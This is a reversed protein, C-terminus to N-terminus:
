KIFYAHAQLVSGDIPSIVQNRFGYLQFGIDSLQTYIDKFMKQGRYLKQFTVEILLITAISLVRKGGKIVQHEYGQTDIKVWLPKEVQNPKIVDDLRKVKIEQLKAGRSFPFNKKHLDGMPLLSSSPPYSSVFIKTTKETEGLAYPFVRINSLHATKEKLTNFSEAVPEFAFIKIDSFLQRAYDIYEGHYAGIDIFSKIRLRKLWADDDGHAIMLPQSGRIRTGLKEILVQLIGM